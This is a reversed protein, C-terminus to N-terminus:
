HVFKLHEKRKIEVSVFSRKRRATTRGPTCSRVVMCGTSKRWKGPCMKALEMSVNEGGKETKLGNRQKKEPWTTVSATLHRTMTQLWPGRVLYAINRTACAGSIGPVNEGGGRILSGSMCWTVHTVCTGRYMGPDSVLPKRLLRHCPFRERCERRM